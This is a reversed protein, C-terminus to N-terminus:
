MTPILQEVHAHDTTCAQHTGLMTLAHDTLSRDRQWIAHHTSCSCADHGSIDAQMASTRKIRSLIVFVIVYRIGTIETIIRARARTNMSEFAFGPPPLHCGGRGDERRARADYM